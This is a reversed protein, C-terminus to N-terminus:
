AVIEQEKTEEVPYKVRTFKMKKSEESEGGIEDAKRKGGVENRVDSVVVKEGRITGKYSEGRSEAHYLVARPNRSICNWAMEKSMGFM